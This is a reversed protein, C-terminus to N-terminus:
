FGNTLGTEPQFNIVRDALEERILLKKMAKYDSFSFILIEDQLTDTFSPSQPDSHFTMLLLKSRRLYTDDRRIKERVLSLLRSTGGPLATIIEQDPLQHIQDSSMVVIRNLNLRNTQWYDHATEVRIFEQAFFLNVQTPIPFPLGGLHRVAISSSAGIEHSRYILQHRQQHSLFSIMFLAAGGSSLFLAASMPSISGTLALLLSCIIGLIIFFTM